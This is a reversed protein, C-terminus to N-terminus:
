GIDASLGCGNLIKVVYDTDEGVFFCAIDLFLDKENDDSLADFSLILQSQIRDPPSRRM